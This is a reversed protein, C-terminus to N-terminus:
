IRDFLSLPFPRNKFIKELKKYEELAKLGLDTIRYAGYPEKKEVVENTIM